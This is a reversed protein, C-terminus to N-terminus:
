MGSLTYGDGTSFTGAGGGQPSYAGQYLDGGNPNNLANLTNNTTSQNYGNMAAKTLGATTNAEIGALTNGQNVAINGLNSNANALTGTANQSAQGAMAASNGINAASGAAAAQGVGVTNMLNGLYNQYDGVYGQYANLSNGVNGLYQQYTTNALGQGFQNLSQLTNGSLQMGSAAAQNNVNQNGQSLQFQYGPSNQLATQMAQSNPVGNTAGGGPQGNPGVANGLGTANTLQNLLGTYGGIVGQINQMGGPNTAGPPQYNAQQQQGPGGVGGSLQPTANSVGQPNMGLAGELQPIASQGLSRYPASLNMQQQLAQQQMGIQAQLQQQDFNLTNQQSNAASAAANSTASAAEAGAAVTGVAAIGAAAIVM